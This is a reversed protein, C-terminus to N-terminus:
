RPHCGCKGRGAASEILKAMRRVLGNLSLGERLGTERGRLGGLRRTIVEAAATAQQIEALPDRVGAYGALMGTAALADHTRGVVYLEARLEKAIAHQLPRILRGLAADPSQRHQLSACLGIRLPRTV